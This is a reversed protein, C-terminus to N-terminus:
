ATYGISEVAVADVADWVPWIVGSRGPSAYRSSYLMQSRPFKSTGVALPMMM